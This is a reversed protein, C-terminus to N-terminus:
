IISRGREGTRSFLWGWRQHSVRKRSGSRITVSYYWGDSGNVSRLVM